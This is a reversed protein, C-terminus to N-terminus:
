CDQTTIQVENSQECLAGYFSLLSTLHSHPKRKWRDAGCGVTSEGKEEVIGRM